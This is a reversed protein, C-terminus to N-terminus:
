FYPQGGLDLVRVGRAVLTRSRKEGGGGGLSLGFILSCVSIDNMKKNLTQLAFYKRGGEPTLKKNKTQYQQIKHKAKRERKLLHGTVM